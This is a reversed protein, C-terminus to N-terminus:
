KKECPSFHSDLTELKEINITGIFMGMHGKQNENFKGTVKVNVHNPNGLKILNVKSVDVWVQNPLKSNSPFCDIKTLTQKEFELDLKGFTTVM